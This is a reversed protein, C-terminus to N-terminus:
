SDTPVEAAEPRMSLRWSSPSQNTWRRVARSLGEPSRFGSRMAVETITLQSNSLLSLTEGRRADDALTAFTTGAEALRAQLTRPSVALRAAVKALTRGARDVTIESRVLTVINREVSDLGSQAFTTMVSAVAPDADVIREALAVADFHLGRQGPREFPVAVVPPRTLRGIVRTLVSAFARSSEVHATGGDVGRLFIDIGRGRPELVVEDDGWLPHFRSLAEVAARVDRCNALLAPLVGGILGVDLWAAFREGPNTFGGDVLATWRAAASDQATSPAPPVGHEAAFRDIALLIRRHESL